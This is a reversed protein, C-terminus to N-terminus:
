WARHLAMICTVLDFSADPYPLATGNYTTFERGFDEATLGFSPALRAFDAPVGETTAVSFTFKLTLSVDSFRGTERKVTLGYREAVEMLALEAEQELERASKRNMKEIMKEIM